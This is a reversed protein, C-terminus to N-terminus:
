QLHLHTRLVRREQEQVFRALLAEDVRGLGQFSVGALGDGAHRVVCGEIDIHKSGVGLSMRLVAGIDPPEPWPGKVLAGGVSIDVVVGDWSQPPHQVECPITAAVRLHKRRGMPEM